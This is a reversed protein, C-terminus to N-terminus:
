MENLKVLVRDICEETNYLHPSVRLSGVRFAIHIGHKRLAGYITKNKSPQNHSIFILTSRKIGSEPSLLTYKDRDLGNIFRSVLKQDYNQIQEIDNGLLYEISAAWPKFNFFNATGFIDYKRAGLDSRVRIETSPKGLDDATQMSLWYNKNYELNERLEPKIWCFGTGYPGCLWKFGASTIADIHTDQIQLPRAGLAQSGNVVFIVGNNHCIEGLSNLDITYGSFSHVWTTCFLRTSPSIAKLLEDAQIVHANPQIYRIKVGQKELALWPLIDSPFDGKMLLIEDGPQWQIGNALLHLGYSNSNSLIIDKPPVKILRGLAERVQQPVESFRDSTLHYPAIKWNIAELAEQVAVRPLAGQHACNIWINDEFPGFDKFYSM